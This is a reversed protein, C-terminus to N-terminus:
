PSSSGPTPAAEPPPHAIRELFVAFDQAMNEDNIMSGIVGHGTRAAELLTTVSEMAAAGQAAIADFSPRPACAPVNDGAHLAPASPTGLTIALYHDGMMGNPELRACADGTLEVGARDDIDFAISAQRGRLTAGAVTGVHVGAVRVEDGQRIGQADDVVTTYASGSARNGCGVWALVLFSFSFLSLTRVAM